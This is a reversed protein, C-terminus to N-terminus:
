CIKIFTDVINKEFIQYTYQNEFKLKGAQGMKKREVPSSILKVLCEALGIVDNQNCLLGTIDNDVIDEIGGEYTSIIPLGVSMAELLVLPFCEKEYYTPLVFIDSKLLYEQKEFGIKKGVYTIYQSLEKEILCNKFDNEKIDGWGGLFTCHFQIGMKKLIELANLLDFVGKSKIMNSLFLIEPIKMFNYTKKVGINPIPIGNPCYHIKDLPVFKEVDSYLRPSLVLVNSAKFVFKYLYRYTFRNLNKKYGKNHLHYVIDVKMFKLFIVYFVDRYFAFGSATIAFYCLDPKKYFIHKILQLFTKLLGILKIFTVKGTESVTNSASLNIFEVLFFNRLYESESIYKGM